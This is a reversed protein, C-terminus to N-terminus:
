GVALLIAGCLVTGAGAWQAPTLREGLIGAALGATVAPGLSGLVGVVSLYGYTAALTFLTNAAVLLVGVLALRPVVRLSVDLRPRRAVLYLGIILAAGFRADFVAWYPDTKGLDFGILMAGFGAGAVIALVVSRLNVRKGSHDETRSVFVIGAIALVMGAIALWGPREGRALGVLVPVAAGCASIPAVIGMAGIVLAQYYAIIAVGGAIGGLVPGLTHTFDLPPTGAVIVAIGACLLAAVQSVANVSWVSRRRSELGGLFDSSGWSFSAALALVAALM